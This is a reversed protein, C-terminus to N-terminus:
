SFSCLSLNKLAYFLFSVFGYGNLFDFHVAFVFADGGGCDPFEADHFVEVEWINDANFFVIETFIFEIHYEVELVGVELLLDEFM